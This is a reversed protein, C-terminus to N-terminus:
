GDLQEVASVAIGSEVPLRNRRAFAEFQDTMERLSFFGEPEPGRYPADPMVTMFNPSNMMFSDWRQTRWTEGIRGRELVRHPVGGRTLYYSVGLGAQGAGIIVVDCTLGAKM